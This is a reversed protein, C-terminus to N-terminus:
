RVVGAFFNFLYHYAGGVHHNGLTRTRIQHRQINRVIIELYLRFQFFDGGLMFFEHAFVGFYLVFIYFKGLPYVAKFPLQGL